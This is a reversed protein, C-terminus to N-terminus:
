KEKKNTLAKFVTTLAKFVTEYFVIKLHWWYSILAKGITIVFPTLVLAKALLLLAPKLVDIFTM